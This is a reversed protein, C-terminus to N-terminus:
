VMLRFDPVAPEPIARLVDATTSRTRPVVSNIVGPNLIRQGVASPLQSIVNGRIMGAVNGGVRGLRRVPNWVYNNITDAKGAGYELVKGAGRALWPVKSVMRALRGTAEAQGALRLAKGVHKVPGAGVLSLLVEGIAMAGHGMAGRTDGARYSKIAKYGSTGAGIIGMAGFILPLLAPIPVAQKTMGQKINTRRNGLRMVDDFSNVPVPALRRRNDRAAMAGLTSGLLTGLLVDRTVGWGGPKQNRIHTRLAAYGLGSAAGLLGFQIGAQLPDTLPVTPIRVQAEPYFFMDGSTNFYNPGAVEYPLYNLPMM